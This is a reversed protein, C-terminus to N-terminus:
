GTITIPVKYKAAIRVKAEYAAEDFNSKPQVKKMSKLHFMLEGEKVYKTTISAKLERYHVQANDGRTVDPAIKDVDAFMKGTVEGSRFHVMALEHEVGKSDTRLIPAGDRFLYEIEIVELTEFIDKGEYGQQKSYKDLAASVRALVSTAASKPKAGEEVEAGEQEKTEPLSISEAAAEREQIEALEKKLQAPSKTKNNM